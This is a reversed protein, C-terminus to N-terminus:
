VRFSRLSFLIFTVVLCSLPLVKFYSFWVKFCYKFYNLKFHFRVVLLAYWYFLSVSSYGVIFIFTNRVCFYFWIVFVSIWIDCFYFRSRLCSVGSAISWRNKPQKQTPRASNMTRAVDAELRCLPFTTRHTQISTIFKFIKKKIHVLSYRVRGRSSRSVHTNSRRVASFLMM